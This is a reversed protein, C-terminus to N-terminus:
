DETRCGRRFGAQSDDLLKNKELWCYLRNNVMREALKGICSTLSIPRYSKLDSAPKGQKLIPTIIATRWQSPLKSEMWTRNIFELLTQRGTPGLHRILENRIKDPGPAKKTALKKISAELEQMSIPYQGGSINSEQITARNGTDLM